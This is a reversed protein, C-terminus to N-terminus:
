YFLKINGTLYGTVKHLDYAEKLTKDIRNKFKTVYELKEEKIKYLM